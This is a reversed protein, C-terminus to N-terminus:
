TKCCLPGLCVMPSTVPSLFYICFLIPGYSCRGLALPGADQFFLCGPMKAIVCSQTLHLIVVKKSKNHFLALSHITFLASWRIASSLAKSVIPQSDAARVTRTM